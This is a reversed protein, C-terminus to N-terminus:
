EINQVQERMQEIQVKLDVAESTIEANVSKSAITNSERNFEQMMFDLRKGIVGGKKLIERTQSIHSTLRNLEEAIDARQAFLIIEQELIANDLKVQQELAFSAIKKRQWEIIDPLRSKISSVHRAITDLHSNLFEELKQGECERSSNFEDIVSDLASRLAEELEERHSEANGLVGPFNIIDMANIQIGVGSEPAIESNLRSIEHLNKLLSAALDQNMALQSDAAIKKVNVVLTLKGRSIKNRLQERFSMEMNMPEPSDPYFFFMDLYRSNVAKLSLSIQYHETKVEKSAFGTMSRLM